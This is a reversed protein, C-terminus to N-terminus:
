TQKGYRNEQIDQLSQQVIAQKFIKNEDEIFQESYDNCKLLRVCHDANVAKCDCAIISTIFENGPANLLEHVGYESTEEKMDVWPGVRKVEIIESNCNPCIM